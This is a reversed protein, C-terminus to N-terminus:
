LSQLFHVLLHPAQPEIQSLVPFCVLDSSRDPLCISPQKEFIYIPPPPAHRSTIQRTLELVFFINIQLHVMVINTRGQALVSHWVMDFRELNSWSKCLVLIVPAWFENAQEVIISCLIHATQKSREIQVSISCTAIHQRCVAKM